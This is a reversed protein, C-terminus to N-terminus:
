GAARGTLSSVMVYLRRPQDCLPQLGFHRYFAASQDDKADVVIATIAIESSAHLVRSVADALLADGVGRGRFKLDVALRGILACPVKPYKPLKRIVNPPLEVLEISSAALTYFGAVDNGELAVFVRAASRRQDQSALQRFYRDLAM